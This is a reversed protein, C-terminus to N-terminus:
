CRPYYYPPVRYRPQNLCQAVLWYTAPEIGTPTMPVKWQCLGEPQVIARHNVWDRVSILVLFIEQPTFGTPAYPQCGEWMWTGVTMFYPLRFRRSGEPGTCAQLPVTIKTIIHPPHWLFVLKGSADLTLGPPCTCTFSGDTNVCTGGGRCVGVNLDCENVDTCTKGDM